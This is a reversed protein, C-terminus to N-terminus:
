LRDANDCWVTIEAEKKQVMLWTPHKARLETLCVHRM